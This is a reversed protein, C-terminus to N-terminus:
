TSLLVKPALGFLGIGYLGGRVVLGNKPQALLGAQRKM